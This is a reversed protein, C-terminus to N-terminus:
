SSKASLWSSCLHLHEHEYERCDYDARRRSQISLYGVENFSESKSDDGRLVNM